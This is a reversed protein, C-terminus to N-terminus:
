LRVQGKGRSRRRGLRIAHAVVNTGATRIHQMELLFVSSEAANQRRNEIQGGVKNAATNRRHSQSSKSCQSSFRRRWRISATWWYASAIEWATPRARASVSSKAPTKMTPTATM